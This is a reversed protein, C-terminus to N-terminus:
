LSTHAIMNEYLCDTNTEHHDDLSFWLRSLRSMYACKYM